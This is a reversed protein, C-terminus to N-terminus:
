GTVAPLEGTNSLRAAENRELGTTEPAMLQSVVAGALLVLAGISMPRGVGISTLSTWGTREAGTLHGRGRRDPRGGLDLGVGYECVIAAAEERRGVSALWYPSEPTGLRM